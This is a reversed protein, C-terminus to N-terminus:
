SYFRNLCSLLRTARFASTCYTSTCQKMGTNLDIEIIPWLTDSVYPINSEFLLYNAWTTLMTSRLGPRDLYSMDPLCGHLGLITCVENRFVTFNPHFISSASLVNFTGWSGFFETENVYALTLVSNRTWTFLYGLNVM